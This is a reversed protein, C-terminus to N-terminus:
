VGFRIILILILTLIYLLPVMWTGAAVRFWTKFSDNGLIVTFISLENSDRRRHDYYQSSDVGNFSYRIVIYTSFMTLLYVLTLVGVIYQTPASMNFMQIISEKPILLLEAFLLASGSATLAFVAAPQHVSDSATVAVQAFTEKLMNKEGKYADETNQLIGLEALKEPSDSSADRVAEDVGRRGRGELVFYLLLAVFPVIRLTFIVPNSETM